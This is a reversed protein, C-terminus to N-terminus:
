EPRLGKLYELLREARRRARPHRSGIANQEASRLFPRLMKKSLPLMRHGHKLAADKLVGVIDEPSHKWRGYADHLVTVTNGGALILVGNDAHRNSVAYFGNAHCGFGFERPEGDTCRMLESKAKAWWGAPDKDIQDLADNCIFLVSNYGM